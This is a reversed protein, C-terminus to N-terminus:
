TAKRQSENYQAVTQRPTTDACPMMWRPREIEWHENMGVIVVREETSLMVEEALRTKLEYREILHLDSPLDTMPCPSSVTYVVLVAAGAHKLRQLADRIAVSDDEKMLDVIFVPVERGEARAKKVAAIGIDISEVLAFEMDDEDRNMCHELSVLTKLNADISAELEAAFTPNLTEAPINGTLRLLEFPDLREGDREFVKRYVVAYNGSVEPYCPKYGRERHRVDQRARHSRHSAHFNWSRIEVTPRHALAGLNPMYSAYYRVPQHIGSDLLILRGPQLEAELDLRRFEPVRVMGSMKAAIDRLWTTM